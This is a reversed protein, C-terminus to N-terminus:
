NKGTANNFWEIFLNVLNKQSEVVIELISRICSEVINKQSDDLKKDLIDSILADAKDLYPKNKRKMKQIRDKIKFDPLKEETEELIEIIKSQSGEDDVRLVLRILKAKYEMREKDM